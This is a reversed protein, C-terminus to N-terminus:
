TIKRQGSLAELNNPELALARDYLEISRDILNTHQYLAAAALLLPCTKM